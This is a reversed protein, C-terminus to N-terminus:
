NNLLSIKIDNKEGILDVHPKEEKIIWDFWKRYVGYEVSSMKGSLPFPINLSSQTNRHIVRKHLASHNDKFLLTSFSHPQAIV